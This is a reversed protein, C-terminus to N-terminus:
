AVGVSTVFLRHWQRYRRIPVGIKQRFLQTLRPVSLGVQEALFEISQNCSVDTKILEIARVIRPDSVFGTPMEHCPNILRELWDYVETPAATRRHLDDLCAICSDEEDLSFYVAGHRGAM